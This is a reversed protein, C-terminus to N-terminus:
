VRISYSDSQMRLGYSQQPKGRTRRSACLVASTSFNSHISSGGVLFVSFLLFSAVRFITVVLYIEARPRDEVEAINQHTCASCECSVVQKYGQWSAGQVGLQCISFLDDVAIPLLIRPACARLSTCHRLARRSRPPFVRRYAAATWGVLTPRDLWNRERVRM